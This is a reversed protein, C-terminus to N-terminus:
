RAQPPLEAADALLFTARVLEEVAAGLDGPPELADIAAVLADADELADVDLYRYVLALAETVEAGTRELLGPFSELAIAFGTVWPRVAAVGDGDSAAAAADSELEFVWPDFWRRRAIAAALESWRRRVLERLRATDLRIPPARGDVDIVRPWWSDEAVPRPQVLVGCLFGDLAGLDLPELPGPLGDLLGQLEDLEADSFALAPIDARAHRSPGRRQKPSARHKPGAM